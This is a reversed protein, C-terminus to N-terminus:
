KVLSRKRKIVLLVGISTISTLAVVVIIITSANSNTNYTAVSQPVLRPAGYMAGGEEFRGFIDTAGKYQVLYDYDSVFDELYNGNDEASKSSMRKLTDYDTATLDGTSDIIGDFDVKSGEGSANCVLYENSKIENYFDRLTESIARMEGDARWLSAARINDTLNSFFRYATGSNYALTTSNMSVVGSDSISVNYSEGISTDMGNSTTTNGIFYYSNSRITYVGETATAKITFSKSILESTATVSDPLSALTAYNQGGGPLPSLSGDLITKGTSDGILYTGAWGGTPKTSTKTFTTVGINVYPELDLVEVTCVLAEYLSPHGFTATITTTGKAVGTVVVSMNTSNNPISAVDSNGTSWVVTDSANNHATLTLTQSGLVGLYLSTMNISFFPDTNRLLYLQVKAQTAKYCGFNSNSSNCELYRASYAVNQILANNGSFSIDWETTNDTTDPNDSINQANADSTLSLYKNNSTKLEWHSGSQVLTLVETNSPINASPIFGIDGEAVALSIGSRLSSAATNGMIRQKAYSYIVVTANNRLSSTSTVLDYGPVTVVDITFTADKNGTAGSFTATATVGEADVTTDCSVSTAKVTGSTSNSFTVNLIVDNPDISEGVGIESPHSAVGTVDTVTVLTVAQIVKMTSYSKYQIEVNGASTIETPSWSFDSENGIYTITDPDGSSYSVQIELGSPDFNEGSTYATKTASQTKSIGTVTKSEISKGYIKINDLRYDQNSTGSGTYTLAFKLYLNEFEMGTSSITAEKTQTGNSSTVASGLNTYSSGGESYSVQLSASTNPGKFTYEIKTVKYTTSSVTTSIPGLTLSDSTTGGSKLRSQFNYGDIAGSANVVDGKLTTIDNTVFQTYNKASTYNNSGSTRHANEAEFDFTKFNTEAGDAHTEFSAKKLGGIVASTGMALSLGLLAGAIKSILKNMSLEGKRNFKFREINPQSYMNHASFVKRKYTLIYYTRSNLFIFYDFCVIKNTNM